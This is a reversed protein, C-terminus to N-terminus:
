SAKSEKNRKDVNIKLNKSTNFITDFSSFIIKLQKVLEKINPNVQMKITKIFPEVFEYRLNFAAELENLSDGICVMNLIKDTSYNEKIKLFTNIKWQRNNGPLTKEYNDRASQINIKPLLKVIEPIFVLSSMEVWGTSANTVIYTDGKEICYKLIKSVITELNKLNTKDDDSMETKKSSIYPYLYTSCLLTDDWDLIIVTNYLKSNNQNKAKNYLVQTYYKNRIKNCYKHKNDYFIKNQLQNKHIHSPEFNDNNNNNIYNIDDTQEQLTKLNLRSNIIYSLDFSDELDYSISSLYSSFSNNNSKFNMEDESILKCKNLSSDYKKDKCSVSRHKDDRYLSHIYYNMNHTISGTNFGIFKALQMSMNSRTSKKSSIESITDSKTDLELYKLNREYLTYLFQRNDKDSNNKNFCTTGM